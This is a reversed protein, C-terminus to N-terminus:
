QEIPPILLKNLQQYRTPKKASWRGGAAHNPMRSDVLADTNFNRDDWTDCTKNPSTLYRLYPNGHFGLYFFAKTGHLYLDVGGEGDLGGAGGGCVVGGCIGLLQRCLLAQLGVLVALCGLNVHRCLHSPASAARYESVLAQAEGCSARDTAKSGRVGSRAESMRLLALPLCRRGLLLADLFYTM